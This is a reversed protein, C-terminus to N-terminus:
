KLYYFINQNSDPSGILFTIAFCLLLLFYIGLFVRSEKVVEILTHIFYSVKQSMRLFYFIKIWMFFCVIAQLTYRTNTCGEDEKKSMDMGM